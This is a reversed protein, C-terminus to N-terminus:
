EPCQWVCVWRGGSRIWECCAHHSSAITPDSNARFETVIRNGDIHSIGKQKDFDIKLNSIEHHLSHIAYKRAADAYKEFVTRLDNFFDVDVDPGAVERPKM